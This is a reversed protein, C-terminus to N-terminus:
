ELGLSCCYNSYSIEENGNGGQVLEYQGAAVITLHPNLCDKHRMLMETNVELAKQRTNAEESIHALIIQKTNKTVIQELIEACNENCLHGSDSFIRQKVFHPRKSEMLMKIDHNSEMIIYDAGLLREYYSENLYGTDTIYVLKEIENEIVYGVTNEADHSLALPTIILHKIMIKEFPKVLHFHFCDDIPCASYVEKNKFMKIQSIHDVHHHTILCADVDDLNINCKQYSLELHRRTSGCDIVLICDEDQLVFSNGKSGSCCMSFKMNARLLDM